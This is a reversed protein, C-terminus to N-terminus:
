VIKWYLWIIIEKKIIRKTEDLMRSKTEFTPEVVYEDRMRKASMILDDVMKDVKENPISWLKIQIMNSQEEWEHMFNGIDSAVHRQM